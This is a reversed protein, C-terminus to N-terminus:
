LSRLHGAFCTMIKTLLRHRAGHLALQMVQPPGLDFWRRARAACRWAVLVVGSPLLHEKDRRLALQMVQPQALVLRRQQRERRAVQEGEDAAAGHPEAAVRLLLRAM